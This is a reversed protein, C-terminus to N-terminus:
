SSENPSQEVRDRELPFRYVQSEGATDVYQISWLTRDLQGMEISRIAEELTKYDAEREAAGEYLFTFHM